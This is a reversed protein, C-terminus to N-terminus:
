SGFSGVLVGAAILLGLIVIGASLSRAMRLARPEYPM